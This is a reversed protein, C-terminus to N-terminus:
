WGLYAKQKRGFGKAQNEKFAIQLKSFKLENENEMCVCGKLGKEKKKGTIKLKINQFGCLIKKEGESAASEAPCKEKKFPLAMELAREGLSSKNKRLRLLKTM